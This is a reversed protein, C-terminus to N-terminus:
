VIKIPYNKFKRRAVKSLLRQWELRRGKQEEVRVGGEEEVRGVQEEIGQDCIWVQYWVFLQM